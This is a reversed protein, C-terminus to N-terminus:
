CVLRRLKRVYDGDMEKADFVDMGGIQVVPVTLWYRDHLEGDDDIELVKLELECEASLAVLAAVVRECLHCGKKSVVTVAKLV